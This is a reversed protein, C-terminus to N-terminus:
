AGGFRDGCWARSRRRCAWSCAVAGAARGPFVQFDNVVSLSRRPVRFVNVGIPCLRVRLFAVIVPSDVPFGSIWTVDEAGYAGCADAPARGPVGALIRGPRRM